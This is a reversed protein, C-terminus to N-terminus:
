EYGFDQTWWPGGSGYRVGVGVAVFDCSLINARHDESEMWARVVAEPTPYGRAINEGGFSDYGEAAAREQPTGGDPSNHDFYGREAMDDSHERAASRLREDVRLADCGAEAREQNTLRVVENEAQIERQNDGSSAGARERTPNRPASEGAHNRTPTDKASPTDRTGDRRSPTETSTPSPRHTRPTWTQWAGWEFASPLPRKRAEFGAPHRLDANQDARGQGKDSNPGPSRSAAQPHSQPAPHPEPPRQGVIDRVPARQAFLAGGVAFVAVVLVSALLPRLWFGGNRRGHRAVRGGLVFM